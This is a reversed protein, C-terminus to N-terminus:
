RKASTRLRGRARPRGPAHHERAQHRPPRRRAPARLRAREAIERAIRVADDIPLPGADLRDRLSSGEVNPMVYYLAGGADGSDHLALIHPHSLKAALQIERLFRERGVSAPSM